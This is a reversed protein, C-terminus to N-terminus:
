GIRLGQCLELVRELGDSTRITSGYQLVGLIAQPLLSYSLQTRSLQRSYTSQILAKHSSRPKSTVACPPLSPAHLCVSCPLVRLMTACLAHYCVPCPLVCLMTM